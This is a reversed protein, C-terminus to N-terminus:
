LNEVRPARHYWYAGVALLAAVVLLVGAQFSRPVYRLRLTWEGAPVAYLQFAGLARRPAVPVRAGGAELTVTWGPFHPEALFVRGEGSGSVSLEDERPRSVVLPEGPSFPPLEVGAPLRDGQAATLRYATSVRAQVASVEWLARGESTFPGAAPAPTLLRSAGVWPMWRAAAQASPLSFLADMVAYSPAPVLPEGFNGAARLRYPANTLGYLRSKWDLVDSGQGAELARPSILYRTGDLRQQLARVLPGPETFLGRPALPTSVRALVVLEVAM